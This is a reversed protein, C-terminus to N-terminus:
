SIGRFSSFILTKIKSTEVLPRFDLPSATLSNCFLPNRISYEFTPIASLEGLFLASRTWAAFTYGSIVEAKTM